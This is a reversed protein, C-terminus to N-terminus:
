SHEKGSITDIYARNVGAYDKNHDDSMNDAIEKQRATENVIFERIVSIQPKEEGKMTRKKVDLLEDIAQRLQESMDMKLLDDLLVPPAAHYEEIFRAALLPRLAYFCQKSIEKIRAWEETTRYVIPSGAGNSTELASM